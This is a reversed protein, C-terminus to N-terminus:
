DVVYGTYRYYGMLDSVTVPTLAVGIAQRLADATRVALSRLILKVKSWTPEIPNLHPSYPPLYWLEAGVAQIAEPVGKVKHSSLNDMVVVDGPQLAPALCDEVYTLFVAADTPGAYMLSAPQIVGALRIAGLMTTTGWHGHPMADYLRDGKPCRGYLRTMNTQASPEDLFVLSSPDVFRRAIMFNGRRQKLKTIWSVSVSFRQAIGALTGAQEDCAKIMRRRLAM